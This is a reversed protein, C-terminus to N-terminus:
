RFSLAILLPFNSLFLLRPVSLCAAHIDLDPCPPPARDGPSAVGACNYIVCSGLLPPRPSRSLSNDFVPPELVAAQFRLLGNSLEVM